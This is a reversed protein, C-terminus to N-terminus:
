YTRTLQQIVRRGLADRVLIFGALLLFIALSSFLIPSTLKPSSPEDPAVASDLIQMLSVDRSEDIAAAELQKTLLEVLAEKYRVERLLRVSDTTPSRDGSITTSGVGGELRALERQLMELERKALMLDPNTTAAFAQMTGIQIEKATVQARLRGSSEILSRGQADAIVLGGKEMAERAAKEAMVLEERTKTVQREFFLRRQSAETIALVSTLRFLEEVYANALAAALKPDRAEVAVSIIGDKGAAIWSVKTLRQRTRNQSEEEFYQKLEFREIMRDAVTRSKMMGVYLDNPNRIGAIGGAGATALGGLQGLLAAASSSNQQPPLIRATATYYNPMLLTVGAALVGAGLTSGILLWKHEWLVRLMELLSIEDDSGKSIAAQASGGGADPTTTSMAM